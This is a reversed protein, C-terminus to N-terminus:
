NDLLVNEIKDIADQLQKIFDITNNYQPNNNYLEKKMAMLAGQVFAVNRKASMLELCQDDTITKM